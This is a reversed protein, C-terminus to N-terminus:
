REWRHDDNDEDFTLYVSKWKTNFFTAYSKERPLYVVETVRRWENHYFLPDFKPDGAFGQLPHADCSISVQGDRGTLTM